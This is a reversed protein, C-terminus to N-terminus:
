REKKKRGWAMPTRAEPAIEYSGALLIPKKKAAVLGLMQDLPLHFDVFVYSRWAREEGKPHKLVVERTMVPLLGKLFLVRIEWENVALVTQAELSMALDGINGSQFTGYEAHKGIFNKYFMRPHIKKSDTAAAWLWLVSYRDSENPPSLFLTGVECSGENTPAADLYFTEIGLILLTKEPDNMPSGDSTQGKFFNKKGKKMHGHGDAHFSWHLNENNEYSGNDVDFMKAKHDGCDMNYFLHMSRSRVRVCLNGLKVFKQPTGLAIYVQEKVLREKTFAERRVIRTASM